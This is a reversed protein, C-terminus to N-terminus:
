DRYPTLQGRRRNRRQYALHGPNPTSYIDKSQAIIRAAPSTLRCFRRLLVRAQRANALLGFNNGLMLITDFTGARSVFKEIPLVQAHKLGRARATKIALPSQDTGPVRLGRAPLLLAHRGAGCGIDLVRGRALRLAKREQLAWRAPARLYIAADMPQVNGDDREIVHLSSGHCHADWLSQGFVDSHKKMRSKRRGEGRARDCQPEWRGRHCDPYGSHADPNLVLETVGPAGRSNLAQQLCGADFGDRIAQTGIVAIPTGRAGSLIATAEGTPILSHSTGDFVM